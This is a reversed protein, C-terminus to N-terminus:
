VHRWTRGKCINYIASKTVGFEKALASYTEGGIRRERVARVKEDDLIASGNVAGRRSQTAGNILGHSIAHQTNQKPTVYELNSISNNSKNGDKHNVNMGAPCAGFFAEAVLRHLWWQHTVSNASLTVRLYGNSMQAPKVARGAKTGQAAILRIV